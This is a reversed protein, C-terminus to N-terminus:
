DNITDNHQEAEDNYAEIAARLESAYNAIARHNADFAVTEDLAPAEPVPITPMPREVYVRKTFCGTLMVCCLVLAAAGFMRKNWEAASNVTPKANKVAANLRKQLHQGEILAKNRAEATAANWKATEAQKREWWLQIFGLVQKIVVGLVGELVGTM